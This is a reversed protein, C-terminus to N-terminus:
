KRRKKKQPADEPLYLYHNEEAQYTLTDQDMLRIKERLYVLATLGKYAMFVALVLPAAIPISIYVAVHINVGAGFYLLLISGAGLVGAVLLCILQQLTFGKWVDSPYAKAIDKNIKIDM